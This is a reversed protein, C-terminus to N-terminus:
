GPHGNVSKLLAMCISLFIIIIDIKFKGLGVVTVRGQSSTHITVSCVEKKKALNVAHSAM